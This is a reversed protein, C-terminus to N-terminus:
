DLLGIIKGIMTLVNKEAELYPQNDPMTNSASPNITARIKSGFVARLRWVRGV